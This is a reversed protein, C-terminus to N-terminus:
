SEKKLATRIADAINKADSIDVPNDARSAPGRSSSVPSFTDTDDEEYYEEGPAFGDMDPLEDILADGAETDSVGESLVEADSVEEVTEADDIAASEERAYSESSYTESADSAKSDSAGNGSAPVTEKAAEAYASDATRGLSLPQFGEATGTDNGSSASFDKKATKDSDEAAPGETFAKSRVPASPTDIVRTGPSLAFDPAVDSDPLEDDALTIDVVSGSPSTKAVGASVDADSAGGLFINYLVGLGGFLAGSFVASLLARLLIVLFDVRGIIGAIFSIVLGAAAGKIATKLNFM